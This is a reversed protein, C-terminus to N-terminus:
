DTQDMDVAEEEDIVEGGAIWTAVNVSLPNKPKMLGDSSRNLTTTVYGVKRAKDEALFRTACRM